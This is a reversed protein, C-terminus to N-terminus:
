LSALTVNELVIERGDALITVQALGPFLDFFRFEGVNNTVTYHVEGAADRLTVVWGSLDAEWELPLIQGLLRAGAVHSSVYLEVDAISSEFLYQRLASDSQLDRAGVAAAAGLSDFSLAAQVRQLLGPRAPREATWRQFRRRLHERVSGPPAELAGARHLDHFTEIWSLANRTSPDAQDLEAALPQSTGAPLRGEVYDILTEFPIANSLTM